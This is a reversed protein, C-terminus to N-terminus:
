DDKAGQHVIQELKLRDEAKYGMQHKEPLPLTKKNMDQSGQRLFLLTGVTAMFVAVALYKLQDIRKQHRM